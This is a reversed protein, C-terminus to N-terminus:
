HQEAFTVMDKWLQEVHAERSCSAAIRYTELLMKWCSPVNPERSIIKSVNYYPTIHHQSLACPPIQHSGPLKAACYGEM